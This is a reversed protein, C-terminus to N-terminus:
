CLQTTVSIWQHDSVMERRSGIKKDIVKMSNNRILCWDLKGAYLANMKVTYDKKKCFPDNFDLQYEMNCSEVAHKQFYVAEREGLTGTRSMKDPSLRPIMRLVGHCLTNFDGAIAQYKLNFTNKQEVIYPMLQKFQNIRGTVGCHTDIHISCCGINGFPSQVVASCAYHIKKAHKPVRQCDLYFGQAEIIPYKSLIANGESGTDFVTQPIYASDMNLACALEKISDINGNRKTGVDVEQLFVIDPKEKKFMELIDKLKKGMEMNLTLFKVISDDYSEENVDLRFDRRIVNGPNLCFPINSPIDDYQCTYPVFSNYWISPKGQHYRKISIVIYRWVLLSIVVAIGSLVIFVGLIIGIM